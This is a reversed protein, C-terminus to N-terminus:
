EFVNYGVHTFGDDKVFIDVYAQIDSRDPLEFNDSSLKTMAFEFFRRALLVAKGRLFSRDKWRVESPWRKAYRNLAKELAEAAYVNGDGHLGFMDVYFVRREYSEELDVYDYCATMVFLYTSITEQIDSDAM